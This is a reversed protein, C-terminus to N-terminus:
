NSAAVGVATGIKGQASAVAATAIEAAKATVTPDNVVAAAITTQAHAHSDAVLSQPTAASNSLNYAVTAVASTAASLGIKAVEAKVDVPEGAVVKTAVALSQTAIQVGLVQADAKTFTNKCATMTVAMLVAAM